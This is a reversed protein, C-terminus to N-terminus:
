CGTNKQEHALPDKKTNSIKMTLFGLNGGFFLVFTGLRPESTSLPGFLVDGFDCSSVRLLGMNTLWSHRMFYRSSHWMNGSNCGSKNLRWALGKSTSTIDATTLIEHGVLNTTSEISILLLPPPTALTHVERVPKHNPM